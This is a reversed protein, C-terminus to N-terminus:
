PGFAALALAGALPTTGATVASIALSSQAAAFADHAGSWGNNSAEASSRDDRETINTWTWSVTGSTTLSQAMGIIAGNANCSISASLTDTSLTIDSATATPAGSSGYVAWVNIHARVMGASFTVVVDATTGSAVALYYLSAIDAGQSTHNATVSHTATNGGITV